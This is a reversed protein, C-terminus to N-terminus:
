ATRARDLPQHTSRLGAAAHVGGRHHRVLPRDHVEGARRAASRGLAGGRDRGGAGRAGRPARSPERRVCGGARDRGRDGVSAAPAGGMPDALTAGAPGRHRAEFRHRAFADRRGGPPRGCLAAGPGSADIWRSEISDRCGAASGLDVVHDEGHPAEPTRCMRRDGGWSGARPSICDGEAGRLVLVGHCRARAADERIGHNAAITAFDFGLSFREHVLEAEDSTLMCM